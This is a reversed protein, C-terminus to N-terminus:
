SLQKRKAFWVVYERLLPNSEIHELLKNM